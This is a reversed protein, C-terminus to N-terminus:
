YETVDVRRRLEEATIAGRRRAEIDKVRIRVVLTREPRAQAAFLGGPVFDVAVTVSEDARLGPFPEAPSSITDILASRVDAVLAEPTRGDRPAGADFWFKWPPPPPLPVEPPPPATVPTPALPAEAATAAEAGDGDEDTLRLKVDHVLRAMEQEAARRVEETEAQLVLVQHELDEVKREEEESGDARVSDRPPHTQLRMVRHRPNSSHFVFVGKDGSPLARPTLVFVVGYGPLRYGRACPARGLLQAAHPVSVRDVARDLRAELAEIGGRSAAGGEEEAATGRTAALPPLVLLVVVPMMRSLM